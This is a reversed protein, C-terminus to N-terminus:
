RPPPTLFQHKRAAIRWVGDNRRVTDTYDGAGAVRPNEGIWIYLQQYRVTAADPGEMRIDPTLVLHRVLNVDADFAKTNAILDERGRIALLRGDHFHIDIAVDDAFCDAFGHRDQEDLALTARALLGSIEIMSM